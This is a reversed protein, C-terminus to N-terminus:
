IVCGYPCSAILPAELLPIHRWAKMTDSATKTFRQGEVVVLSSGYCGAARLAGGVNESKKSNFLGIASYGRMKSVAGEGGRNDLCGFDGLLHKGTGDLSGARIVKYPEVFHDIM